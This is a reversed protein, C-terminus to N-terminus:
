VARIAGNVGNPFFGGASTGAASSGYVISLVQSTTRTFAFGAPTASSANATGATTFFGGSSTPGAAATAASGPDFPKVDLADAQFYAAITPNQISVLRLSGAHAGEAALIQSAVTLNAGNFQAIAGAYATVGVDELTRAISLANTATITGGAGLNIAPRAIVSSGLLAILDKVHNLEDFYIANLMDTIQTANTGTFTLKGPANSIIGAGTLVSGPLDTGQTIYSYFTAELYELNLAFNLIDTPQISTTPAPMTESSCGTLMAAGAVAGTMGLAAMFNRRNLERGSAITKLKEVTAVPDLVEIENSAM